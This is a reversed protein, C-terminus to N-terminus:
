VGSGAAPAQASERITRAILGAVEKSRWYSGHALSFDVLAIARQRLLGILREFWAMPHTIQDYVVLYRKEVDVIEYLLPDLPYALPDGPHAFNLWPLRRGEQQQALSRLLKQLRPTVDHTADSRNQESSDVDMLSFLGLPSGMTHVSATRLGHASNPDIGYLADRILMVNAHGPVDPPDWRSSFLLDFLIIAGFSHTVLHLRDEPQSAHLVTVLQDKLTQVIKAGVYRSTYLAWDGVFQLLLTERVDRFWFQPWTPSQEYTQKLQDEEANAVDGWYLAVKELHLSSATETVQAQINAFLPDAYSPNLINNRTRVGHIFMVYDTVMISFEKETDGKSWM